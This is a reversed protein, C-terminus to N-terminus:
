ARGAWINDLLTEFRRAADSGNCLPSTALLDRLTGRYRERRARDLGLSVALDVYEDSTRAIFEPVGAATALSVGVRGRHSTGELIIVPVGMHLADCTTTTGNYPFTDLAVDLDAYMAFHEAPTAAFPRLEIRDKPIGAQALMGILRDRKWQDELEGSKLLLRSNPVRSIIRAWLSAVDANIKRVSNFTGFVAHDRSPAMVSPADAPPKFCLFCGELRALRETAGAEAGPPDTCHDVIRYDMTPLGSTCPYGLYNACVPAPKLAMVGARNGPLLMSLDILVDIKDQTILSHVKRDDLTAIQRWASAKSKLRDSVDDEKTSNHYFFLEHRTIHEIIPELFFTVSHRRLDPSLIGVRLREKHTGAHQTRAKADDAATSGFARRHAEILNPHDARETFGMLLAVRIAAAGRVRPLTRALLEAAKAAEGCRVLLDAYGELCEPNDPETALGRTYEAEAEAFEGLKSLEQALNARCGAWGPDTALSHRFEAAALLPKKLAAYALGLTNRCEASSPMAAAARQAFFEAEQPRHQLLLSTALLRNLEADSSAKVISKRLVREADAPRGRALLDTAEILGSQQPLPRFAM